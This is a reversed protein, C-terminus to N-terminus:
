VIKVAATKVIGSKVVSKKVSQEKAGSKIIVGEETLVVNDKGYKKIADELGLSKIHRVDIITHAIVSAPFRVVFAAILSIGALALIGVMPMAFMPVIVTALSGVVTLFAVASSAKVVKGVQNAGQKGLETPHAAAFGKPNVVSQWTEKKM